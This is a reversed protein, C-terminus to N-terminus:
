VHKRNVSMIDIFLKNFTFYWAICVFTSTNSNSLSGDAKIFLYLTDYLIYIILVWYYKIYKIKNKYKIYIVAFGFANALNFIM